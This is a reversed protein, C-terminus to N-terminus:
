QGALRATVRAEAARVRDPYHSRGYEPDQEIVIELLENHQVTDKWPLAIYLPLEFVRLRDLNSYVHKQFIYRKEWEWNSPAFGTGPDIICRERVGLVEARGLVSDFWELMVDIPDDDVGLHRLQRPDPGNLFPVVIPCGYEAAVDLMDDTQLGDAANLWGVGAALARRAVSPRWTDVSVPVGAHVIGPLVAQIRQWEVEPDVVTANDTSGQGGLDVGGCGSELLWAVRRAAAEATTCISEAHLSDPSCNVVGFLFV